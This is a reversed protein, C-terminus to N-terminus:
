AVPPVWKQGALKKQGKSITGFDGGTKKTTTFGLKKKSKSNYDVPTHRHYVEVVLAPRDLTGPKSYLGSVFVLTNKLCVTRSKRPGLM